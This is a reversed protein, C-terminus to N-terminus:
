GVAFDSINAANITGNLDNLFVIATLAGENNGPFGTDGIEQDYALVGLNSSYYGDGNLDQQHAQENFTDFVYVHDLINYNYDPGGSDNDFHYNDNANAMGQAISSWLANADTKPSADSLDYFQNNFASADNFIISSGGDTSYGYITTHAILDPQGIDAEFTLNGTAVYDTNAVLISGDIDGNGWNLHFDGTHNVNIDVSVDGDATAYTYDMSTLYIKDFAFVAKQDGGGEGDLSLNVDGAGDFSAYRSLDSDVKDISIDLSSGVHEVNASLNGISIQGFDDLGSGINVYGSSAFDGLLNVNINETVVRSGEYDSDVLIELGLVPNDQYVNAESTITINKTTILATETYWNTDANLAIGAFSNYDDNELVGYAAVNIDGLKVEAHSYDSAWAYVGLHAQNDNHGETRATITIDETTVKASSYDSAYAQMYVRATATDAKEGGASVTINGLTIQADSYDSAYADIRNIFARNYAEGSAVVSIDGINVEAYGGTDASASIADIAAWAAEKATAEVHIGDINLYAEAANDEPYDDGDASAGLRFTADPDSLGAYASDMESHATINIDGIHVTATADNTAYATIYSADFDDDGKVLYAYADGRAEANITIGGLINLTATPSDGGDGAYASIQVSAYGSTAYALAAYADDENSIAEVSISDISVTADASDAAYASINLYSSKYLDYRDTYGRENNLVLAAFADGNDALSTVDIDGVNLTAFSSEQAYASMVLQASGWDGDNDGRNESQGVIFANTTGEGTVKEAHISINGINVEATGTDTAEAAIYASVSQAYGAMFADVLGIGSSAIAEISIDGIHVTADSSNYANATFDIRVYSNTDAYGPTVTDNQTPPTGSASADASTQATASSEAFGAMFALADGDKGAHAIIDIDGVTTIASGDDSADASISVYVYSEAYAAADADALATAAYGSTAVATAQAYAQAEVTSRAFGAMYANADNPGYTTTGTNEAYAEISIDGVTVNAEAEDSASSEINVGVVADANIEVRAYTSVTVDSTNSSNNIDNESVHIETHLNSQGAMFANAESSKGTAEALISVDGLTVNAQSADSASASFNVTTDNRLYFEFNSNYSQDDNYVNLNVTRNNDGAMFARASSEKGDTHASVSIDGVEVNGISEFGTEAYASLSVAQYSINTGLYYDENTLTNYTGVSIDGAVYAMADSNRTSYYDGVIPDAVNASIDIDGLLISTANYETASVDMAVAFRASAETLADEGVNSSSYDLNGVGYAEVDSNRSSGEATISIDGMEVTASSSYSTFTAYTTHAHAAVYASVEFSSDIAGATLSATANSIIADAEAHITIDGIDLSSHSDINDNGFNGVGLTSFGGVSAQFKINASYASNSAAALMSANAYDHGLATINISDIAFSAESSSGQASAEFRLDLDPSAGLAFYAEADGNLATAEVNVTGLSIAAASSFGDEGIAIAYGGAYFSQSASGKAVYNDNPLYLSNNQEFTAVADGLESTASINIDGAVTLSADGGIIAAAVMVANDYQGDYDLADVGFGTAYAVGQGTNVASVDINGTVEVEASANGIAYSAYLGDEGLYNDSETILGAQTFDSSSEHSLVINGVLVSAAGAYGTADEGLSFAALNTVYAGNAFYASEDASYNIAYSSNSSIVDLNIDHVTVKADGALAFSGLGVKALADNSDLHAEIECIGVEADGLLSFAGADVDFRAQGSNNDTSTASLEEMWIVESSGFNASASVAVDAAAYETDFNIALGDADVVSNTPSTAYDLGNFSFNGWNAPREFGNDLDYSYTGDTTINLITPSLFSSSACFATFNDIDSPTPSPPTAAPSSDNGGGSLAVAVGALGLGAAGYWVYKQWGRSDSSASTAVSTPTDFLNTKLGSVDYYNQESASVKVQASVTSLSQGSDEDVTNAANVKAQKKFHNASLSTVSDPAQSQNVESLLSPDIKKSTTSKAAVQTLKSKVKSVM